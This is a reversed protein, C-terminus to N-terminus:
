HAKLIRMEDPNKWAGRQKLYAYNRLVGVWASYYENKIHIGQGKAEPDRCYKDPMDDGELFPTSIDIFDYGNQNCWELALANFRSALNNNLARKSSNFSEVMYSASLVVIKVDPCREKIKELVQRNSEFTKEPSKSSPYKWLETLGMLCFYVTKVGSKEVAEWSHLAEGKYRPFYKSEGHLDVYASFGYTSFFRAGGLFNKDKQKQATCYISFDVALSNGIFMSDKFYSDLESPTMDEPTLKM